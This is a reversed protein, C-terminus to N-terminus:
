PVKYIVNGKEDFIVISGTSRIETSGTKTDKLEIKGLVLRLNKKNDHLELSPIGDSDLTVAFRTYIIDDTEKGSLLDIRTKNGLTSLIIGQSKESILSLSVGSAPDQSVLFKSLHNENGIRFFTSAGETNLEAKVNGFV